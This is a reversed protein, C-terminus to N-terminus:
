EQRSFGVSPGPPSHDMPDYFTLCLQLLECIQGFIQGLPWALSWFHVAENLRSNPM